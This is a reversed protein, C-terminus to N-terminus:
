PQNLEKLGEPLSVLIRKRAPDIELCIARAFPILLGTDLDLLGPGGSEHFAKVVGLRGGTAQEIVECGVLDDQFYEGPDLGIAQEAPVRVEAGSLAEAASISDVGEFKLILRGDHWWLNEIRHRTGEGFLYVESLTDFRELRSTLPLAVLEGRNGRPRLLTAITIWGENV